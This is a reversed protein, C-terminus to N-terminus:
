PLKKVVEKGVKENAKDIANNIVDKQQEKELYNFLDYTVKIDKKLELQNLSIGILRIPQQGYTEDFIDLLEQLLFSQDDTHTLFTRSKSITRFNNFRLKIGVTKCLLDDHKMRLYSEEFLQKITDILLTEVDTDFSFTTENSISKPLAYKSPDVINSSEGKIDKMYGQYSKESMVKLILDHNSPKVFDGITEIGLRILKPQTKKGIGFMDKIPLPYLKSEIDRKRLVTIGLPKKMDSAMKSLFLTPAIGISSPLQYLRILEKQIKKALELPHIKDSLSTVDMYAEDISVQWVLHTYTKLYDIFLSSYKHYLKHRNPVVILKPYLNMAESISMGSRIGYHRAKYSATTLIGGRQFNLGGGVAFVKQKLSPNEIMEVSAFFANLDIHFIINVPKKM